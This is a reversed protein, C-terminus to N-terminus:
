QTLDTESIKGREPKILISESSNEEATSETKKKTGARNQRILDELQTAYQLIKRSLTLDLQDIKGNLSKKLAILQADVYKKDTSATAAKGSEATQAKKFEKDMLAVSKDLEGISNELETITSRNEALIQTAEALTALKSEVTLEIDAVKRNLIQSQAAVKDNIATRIKKDMAAEIRSDIKGDIGEEIGKLSAVKAEIGAEIAKISAVESEIKSEIERSKENVITLTEQNTRDLIHLAGKYQEAVKEIDKRMLDLQKETEDKSSKNSDILTLEDQIAITQQKVEPIEKELSFRIKALEVEFANLRAEFQTAVIDVQSQGSDNIALVRKKIDLYGYVLIACILCPLLVAIITVRNGLKEIKQENLQERYLVASSDSDIADDSNSITFDDILRKKGDLEKEM